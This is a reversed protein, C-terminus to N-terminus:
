NTITLLSSPHYYQATGLLNDVFVTIFIYRLSYSFLILNSSYNLISIFEETIAIQWNNVNMLICNHM